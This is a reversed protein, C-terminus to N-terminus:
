EQANPAGTEEGPLRDLEAQIAQHMHQATPAVKLPKGNLFFGPTAQVNLVQEAEQRIRLVSAELEEDAMCSEFRDASMGGVAAIKKLAERFDPTFAWKDQLRFLVHQFKERRAEPACHVLMSARLAPENLPFDRNIFRLAGTDIYAERIGPLVETHFRACHSCSYSSYEILLVPADAEGLMIDSDRPQLIAERSPLAADTETNATATATATAADEAQAAPLLISLALLCVTLPRLM